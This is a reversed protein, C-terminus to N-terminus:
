LKWTNSSQTLKWSNKNPKILYVYGRRDLTYVAFVNERFFSTLGSWDIKLSKLESIVSSNAIPFTFPDLTNLVLNEISVSNDVLINKLNEVDSDLTYNVLTNLDIPTSINNFVLITSAIPLNKDLLVNNIFESNIVNNFYIDGIYSLNISEQQSISQNIEYVTLSDAYLLLISDRPIEKDVLLNSVWDVPLNADIDLYAEGAWETNLVKNVYSVLTNGINLIYNTNVSEKSLINLEKGEILVSLNDIYYLIDEDINTSPSINISNDNNLNLLSYAIFENDLAINTLYDLLIISDANLIAQGSWEIPLNNISKITQLFSIVTNIDKLTVLLTELLLQKNSITSTLNSVNINSTNLISLINDLVISTNLTISSIHYIDLIINNSNLDVLNSNLFTNDLNLTSTNALNNIWNYKLTSINSISLVYDVNLQPSGGVGIALGWGLFASAPNTSLTFDWGDADFAYSSAIVEDSQDIDLIRLQDSSMTATDATALGDEDVANVTYINTDDFAALSWGWVGSTALSNITSVGVVSNIMGFIPTFGPTTEAYNGSTPWTTTFLSAEGGGLAFAFYMVIDADGATAGTFSFGNADFDSVPGNWAFADNGGQGAVTDSRVEAMTNMTGSADASYIQTHRQTDLGDNIACGFSQHLTPSYTTDTDGICGLFVGDPEFGPATVDVTNGNDVTLTGVHANFDTGGFLIVTVLCNASPADSVNIQVGDTIWSNFTAAASPGNTWIESIVGAFQHRATDSSAGGDVSVVTQCYQNVGDTFGIGFRAAGTYATDDTAGRSFIFMAAKPTGFGSITIDKNGTTTGLTYRTVEIKIDAM